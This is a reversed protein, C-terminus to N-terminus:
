NKVALILNLYRPQWNASGANGATTGSVSVTHTHLTSAAGTSLQRNHIFGGFEWQSGISATERPLDEGSYLDGNYQDVSFGDKYTHTHAGSSSTTSTTDSFTHTHTPVKNMVTPTDVGGYGFGGTGGSGTSGGAVNVVRLIRDAAETTGIQTWGTPASPQAWLLRSGSPIETVSNVSITGDTVNIGSGIKVAGLSLTTAKPLNAANILGMLDSSNLTVAGSRGNFTVVGGASGGIASWDSGDCVYITNQTSHFFLRGKILNDLPLISGSEITLNKVVTGDALEIGYYIM